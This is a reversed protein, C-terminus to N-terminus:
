MKAEFKPSYHKKLGLINFFCVGVWLAVFFFCVRGVRDMGATWDSQGGAPFGARVAVNSSSHQFSHEQHQVEPGPPLLAGACHPPSGAHLLLSLHLHDGGADGSRRGAAAWLSLSLLLALSLSLSLSLNNNQMSVSFFWLSFDLSLLFASSFFLRAFPPISCVTTFIVIWSTISPIFASVLGNWKNLNLELQRLKKEVPKSECNELDIYVVFIKM